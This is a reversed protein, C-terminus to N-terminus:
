GGRLDIAERLAQQQEATPDGEALVFRTMTRYLESPFSHAAQPLLIALADFDNDVTPQRGFLRPLYFCTLLRLYRAEVDRPALAVAADLLELGENLHRLRAPPWSGHKARLAIFAGQYAMLTAPEAAEEGAAARLAAVESLGRDIADPDEVAALFMERLDDLEADHPLTAPPTSIM